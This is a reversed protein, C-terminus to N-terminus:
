KLNMIETKVDPFHEKVYEEATGKAVRFDVKLCGNFPWLSEPLDTTLIVTDAGSMGTIVLIEKIDIKM